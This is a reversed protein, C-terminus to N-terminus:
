QRYLLARGVFANDEYYEGSVEPRNFVGARFSFFSNPSAEVYIIKDSPNYRITKNGGKGRNRSYPVNNEGDTLIVSINGDLMEERQRLSV